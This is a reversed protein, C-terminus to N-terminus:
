DEREKGADVVQAEFAGSQVRTWASVVAVARHNTHMVDRWPGGPYDMTQVVYRSGDRWDREFEAIVKGQAAM